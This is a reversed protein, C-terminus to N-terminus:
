VGHDGSRLFVRVKGRGEQAPGDCSIRSQGVDAAKGSFFRSITTQTSSKKATKAASTRKFNSHM